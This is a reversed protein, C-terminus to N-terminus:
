VESNMIWPRSVFSRVCGLIRHARGVSQATPQHRQEAGQAVGRFLHRLHLHRLGLGAPSWQRAGVRPQQQARGGAHGTRHRDAVDFLVRSVVAPHGHHQPREAGPEAGPQLRDRGQAADGGVLDAGGLGRNAAVRDGGGRAGLAVIFSGRPARIQSCLTFDWM